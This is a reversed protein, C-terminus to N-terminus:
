LWRKLTISIFLKGCKVGVNKSSNILCETCSTTKMFYMDLDFAMLIQLNKPTTDKKAYLITSLLKTNKGGIGKSKNLQFHTCPKTLSVLSSYLCDPLAGYPM